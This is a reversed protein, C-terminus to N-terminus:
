SQNSSTLDELAENLKPFKFHFGEEELRSSQCHRGLLILEQDTRLIFRAGFIIITQDPGQDMQTKKSFLNGDKM